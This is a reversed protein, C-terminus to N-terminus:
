FIQARQNSVNPKMDKIMPPELCMSSIDTGEDCLHSPVVNHMLGADEDSTPRIWACPAPPRELAGAEIQAVLRALQDANTEIGPM